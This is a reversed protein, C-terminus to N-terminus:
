RLVFPTDHLTDTLGTSRSKRNLNHLLWTAIMLPEGIDLRATSRRRGRRRRSRHCLCEHREFWGRTGYGSEATNPDQKEESREMESNLSRKGM